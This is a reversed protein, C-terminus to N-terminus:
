GVWITDWINPFDYPRSGGFNKVHSVYWSATLFLQCLGQTDMQKFHVKECWDKITFLWCFLTSITALGPLGAETCLHPGLQRPGKPGQAHLLGRGQGWSGPFWRERFPDESAEQQVQVQWFPRGRPLGTVPWGSFCVIFITSFVFYM